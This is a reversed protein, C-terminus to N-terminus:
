HCSPRCHQGCSQNSGRFLAEAHQVEHSGSHSAGAFDFVASGDRRDITVALRIPTGDDMQDEAVVTGVEPLGRERSFRRLMERVAQEANEQAVTASRHRAVSTNNILLDQDLLEPPENFVVERYLAANSHTQQWSV